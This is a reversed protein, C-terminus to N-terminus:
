NDLANEPIPIQKVYIVTNIDVYQFSKKTRSNLEFLRTRPGIEELFNASLRVHTITGHRKTSRTQVEHVSVDVIDGTKPIFHTADEFFEGILEVPNPPKGPESHVQKEVRIM